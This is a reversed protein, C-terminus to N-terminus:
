DLDGFMHLIDVFIVIICLSKMVNIPYSIDNEVFLFRYTKYDDFKLSIIRYDVIEDNKVNNNCILSITIVLILSHLNEREAKM